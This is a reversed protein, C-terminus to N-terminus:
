RKPLLEVDPSLLKWGGGTKVMTDLKLEREQGSVQAIVRINDLASTDTSFVIGGFDTGATVPIPEPCYKMNMRVFQAGRLEPTLKAVSAAFTTRLRAYMKPSPDRFTANFEDASIFLATLPEAEGGALQTIVQRGLDDPTAASRTAVGGTKCGALSLLGITVLSLTISRM